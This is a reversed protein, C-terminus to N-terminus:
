EWMGKEPVQNDQEEGSEPKRQKEMVNKRRYERTMRRGSRKWRCIMIRRRRIRITLM